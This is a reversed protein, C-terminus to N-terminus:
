KEFDQRERRGEGERKREEEPERWRQECPRAHGTDREGRSLKTIPSRDDFPLLLRRVPQKPRSPARRNLSGRADDMPRRAHGRKERM